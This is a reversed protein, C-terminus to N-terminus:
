AKTWTFALRGIERPASVRCTEAGRLRRGHLGVTSQVQVVKWPKESQRTGLLGKPGMGLRLGKGDRETTEKQLVGGMQVILKSHQTASM